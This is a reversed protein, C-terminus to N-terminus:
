PHDSDPSQTTKTTTERHGISISWVFLMPKRLHWPDVCTRKKKCLCPVSAEFLNYPLIAIFFSIRLKKCELFEQHIVWFFNKKSTSVSHDHDELVLGYRRPNNRTIQFPSFIFLFFSTLVSKCFPKWKRDKKKFISTYTHAPINSMQAIRESTTTMGGKRANSDVPLDQKM